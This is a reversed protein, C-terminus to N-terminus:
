VQLKNTMPYAMPNSVPFQATQRSPLRYIPLFSWCAGALATTTSGAPGAIMFQKWASAPLSGGTLKKTPSNDDNGFWIGTVLHATHGVFLADRFNQSTGTKGGAIHGEIHAARGTGQDVVQRLMANMKSLAEPDVVEIPLPKPRQYLLKGRHTTIRSILYPRARLGGNSFPVYASVLEM